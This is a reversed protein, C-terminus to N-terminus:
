GIFGQSLRRCGVLVPSEFRQDRSMRRCVSVGSSVSVAVRLAYTSPEVGERPESIGQESCTHRNAGSMAVWPFGMFGALSVPESPAPPELMM